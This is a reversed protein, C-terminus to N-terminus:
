KKGKKKPERKYSPRAQPAGEAMQSSLPIQYGAM